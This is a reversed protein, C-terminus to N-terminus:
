WNRSVKLIDYIIDAMKRRDLRKSNEVLDLLNEAMGEIERLNSTLEEDRAIYSNEEREWDDQIRELENQLDKQGLIQATATEMEYGLYENIVEYVHQETALSVVRGDNLRVLEM